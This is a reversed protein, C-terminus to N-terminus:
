RGTDQGAWFAPPQWTTGRKFSSLWRDIKAGSAGTHEGHHHMGDIYHGHRPRKTIVIVNHYFAVEAVNKQAYSSLTCKMDMGRKAEAASPALENGDLNCGFIGNPLLVFNDYVYKIFKDGYAKQVLDEVIYVGGPSLHKFALELTAIQLDPTHGGDDLIVDFAATTNHIRQWLVPDSQSGVFIRNPTGYKPNKEYARVLPSIDLGAVYAQSGLYHRWMRLGGGSFIGVELIKADTGRFRSIHKDYITFYHRWKWLGAGVTNADFFRELDTVKDFPHPASQGSPTFPNPFAAARSILLPLLPLLAAPRRARRGSAEMRM